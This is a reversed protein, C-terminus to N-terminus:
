GRDSTARLKEGSEMSIVWDDPAYEGFESSYYLYKEDTGKYVDDWFLFTHWLVFGHESIRLAGSEYVIVIGNAVSLIEFWYFGQDEIKKRNLQAITKISTDACNVLVVEFLGVVILFSIPHSQIAYKLRAQFKSQAAESPLSELWAFDRFHMKHGFASITVDPPMETESENVELTVFCDKSLRVIEHNEVINSEKIIMM